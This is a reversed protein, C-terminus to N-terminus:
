CILPRPLLLELPQREKEGKGGGGGQHLTHAPCCLSKFLIGVVRRRIYIYIYVYLAAYIFLLTKVRGGEADRPGSEGSRETKRGSSWTEKTRSVLLPSFLTLIPFPLSPLNVPIKGSLFLSKSSIFIELLYRESNGRIRKLILDSHRNYSNILQSKM